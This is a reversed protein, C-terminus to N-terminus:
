ENIIQAVAVLQAVIGVVDAFVLFILGILVLILGVL